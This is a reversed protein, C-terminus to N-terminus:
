APLREIQRNLGDLVAKAVAKYPDKRMPASGFLFVGESESGMTMSVLVMLHQGVTVVGVTDLAVKQNAGVFTAFMRIANITAQAVVQHWSSDTTRGSALGIHALGSKSLQVRARTRSAAIECAVDDIKLRWSM